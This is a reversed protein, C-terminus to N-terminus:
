DMPIKNRCADVLRKTNETYLEMREMLVGLRGGSFVSSNSSPAYFNVLSDSVLVAQTAFYFQHINPQTFNFLVWILLHGSPDEGM